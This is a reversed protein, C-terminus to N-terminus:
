QEIRTLLRDEIRGDVFHVRVPAEPQTLNYLGTELVPSNPNEVVKMSVIQTAVDVVGDIEYSQETTSNYFTGSVVGDKNLALQLYLNPPAITMADKSLAFVGLPMWEDSTPAAAVAEIAETPDVYVVPAALAVSPGWYYAGNDSYYDYYVPAANWGLWGGIAIPTAWKWWDNHYHYYPHHYHHNDWFNQNFWNKRGPRYTRVENRINNGVNKRDSPLTVPRQVQEGRISRHRSAERPDTGRDVPGREIPRPAINPRSVDSPNVRGQPRQVNMPRTPMSQPRQVPRSAARSMSPSRQVSRGGGGGGGGRGGSGGRADLEPLMTLVAAAFASFILFAKKM